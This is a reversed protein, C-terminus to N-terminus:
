AYECSSPSPGQFLTSSHEASPGNKPPPENRAFAVNPIPSLAPVSHSVHTTPAGVHPKPSAVPYHSGITPSAAPTLHVHKKAIRTSRMRYGFRCNPPHAQSSRPPASVSRAANPSGVEPSTEGEGTVPAAAPAPLIHDNNYHNHHRHHHHPHPLPAPSPSPSQAGSGHLSHQLISSLRVQKVRGFETNNLGLNGSHRGMITQALQKLREKSPTIGVALLVSTQVITPAAVTSGESNSLVVYLNQIDVLFGM